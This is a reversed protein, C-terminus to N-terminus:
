AVGERSEAEKLRTEWSPPPEEGQDKMGTGVFLELVVTELDVQITDSPDIEGPERDSGGDEMQLASFRNATGVYNGDSTTKSASQKSKRRAGVEEFGDSGRVVVQSILISGAKGGSARRNQPTRTNQKDVAHHVVPGLANLILMVQDELCPPLDRLEVWAARLHATTKAQDKYIWDFMRIVKGDLFHPPRALIELKERESGFLILFEKKSLAKIQCITVGQKHVMTEREWAVVRDRSPSSELAQLLVETKRLRGMKSSANELDLTIVRIDAAVGEESQLCEQMVAMEGAIMAWSIGQGWDEPSLNEHMDTGDVAVEETRVGSAHSQDLTRFSRWARFGSPNATQDASMRTDSEVRRDDDRGVSGHKGALISAGSLSVNNCVEINGRSTEGLVARKGSQQSSGGKSFEALLM